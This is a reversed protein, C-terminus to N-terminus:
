WDGCGDTIAFFCSAQSGELDLIKEMEAVGTLAPSVQTEMNKVRYYVQGRFWSNKSDDHLYEEAPKDDQPERIDQVFIVDPILSIKCFDHDAVKFSKNVGVVVKKGQSVSALPFDAEGVSVKCKANASIFTM